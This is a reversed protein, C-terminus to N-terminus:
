PWRREYVQRTLESSPTPPGGAYAAKDATWRMQRPTPSRIATATHATLRRPLEVWTPNGEGHFQDEALDVRIDAPAIESGSANSLM